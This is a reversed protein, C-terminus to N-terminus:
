VVKSLVEDTPVINLKSRMWEQQLLIYRPPLLRNRFRSMSIDSGGPFEFFNNPDKGFASFQKCWSRSGDLYIFLYIHTYIHIYM